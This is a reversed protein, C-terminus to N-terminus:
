NRFLETEQTNNAPGAILLGTETPAIIVRSRGRRIEKEHKVIYGKKILIRISFQISQKTTKWQFDTELKELLQDIDCWKEGPEDSGRCLITLIQIQKVTFSM